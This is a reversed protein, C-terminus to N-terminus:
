TFCVKPQCLSILLSSLHQHLNVYDIPPYNSLMSEENAEIDKVYEQNEKASIFSGCEKTNKTNIVCDSQIRNSIENLQSTIENLKPLMNHTALVDNETDDEEM